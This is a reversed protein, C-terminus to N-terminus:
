RVKKVVKKTEKKTKRKLSKLFDKEKKLVQKSDVVKSITKNYIFDDTQNVLYLLTKEKYKIYSTALLWAIAMQVYYDDTKIKSILELTKDIYIDHLYYNLLIIIGVRKIWNKKNRILKKAYKFGIEQNEKKTFIKLNAVMLDVHAWNNLKTLYEDLYDTLTQFSLKLYGYLFGEIMIPEYLNSNNLSIFTQYNGKSIEKAIQKLENTRIGILNNTGIIKSHFEQYKEDKLTELYTLFEQYKVVDWTLFNM